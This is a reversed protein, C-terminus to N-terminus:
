VKLHFLIFGNFHMEKVKEVGAAFACIVRFLLYDCYCRLLLLTIFTYLFLVTHMFFAVVM